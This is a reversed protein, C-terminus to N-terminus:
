DGAQVLEELHEVKFGVHKGVRTCRIRRRIVASSSASMIATSDHVEVVVPSSEDAV